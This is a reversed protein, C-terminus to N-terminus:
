KQAGMKGFMEEYVEDELKRRMSKKNPDSMIRRKILEKDLDIGKKSAVKNLMAEEVLEYKLERNIIVDFFQAIKIYIRYFIYSMVGAIILTGLGVFIEGIAIPEVYNILAM